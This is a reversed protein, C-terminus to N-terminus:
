LKVVSVPPTVVPQLPVVNSTVKRNTYWHVICGVVFAAALVGLFILPYHTPSTAATATAAATGAVIITTAHNIGAPNTVQSTLFMKREAERRRTLGALKVGGAHDWALFDDAAGDYNKENLVKLLTSKGLAGTNFQFSVLADYQNQNLPVKVLQNVEIEVSALDSALINDADTQTIQQGVYVKPPGAADTHGYGITLVGIAHQGVEVVHDNHDDYAKLILGEFSEIFKRGQASTKM